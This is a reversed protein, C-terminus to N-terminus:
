KVILLRKVSLTKHDEKLWLSYVGSPAKSLNLTSLQSNLTASYVKGGYVNYVELSLPRPVLSSSGSGGAVAVQIQGSAPNPFINLTNDKEIEFGGTASCIDNESFSVQSENLTINNEFYNSNSTAGLTIFSYDSTQDTVSLNVPSLWCNIDNQNTKILFIDDNTNSTTGTIFYDGSTKEIIEYGVENAFDGLLFSNTPNGLNDFKIFVSQEGNGYSNSKGCAIYDGNTTQKVSYLIDTGTGGITKAWKIDNINQLAPNIKLLLMDTGNTSGINVEGAIIVDGDSCYYVSWARGGPDISRTIIKPNVSTLTKNPSICYIDYDTGQLEGVTFYTSDPLQCVSFIKNNNTINTKDYRFSLVNGNTDIKFIFPNYDGSEQTIGSITFKGDLTEIVDTAEWYSGVSNYAKAWLLTGNSDTCFATAKTFGGNPGYGVAIYNGSSTQLVANVATINNSYRKNWQIIGASDIKILLNDDNSSFSNSKGAIIVGGDNTSSVAVSVDNNTASYQKQFTTQANINKVICTLIATILFYKKM